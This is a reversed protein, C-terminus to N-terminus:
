TPATPWVVSRPDETNSPLDRLNERYGLWATKQNATLPADVAQTWDTQAIMDNRAMRLKTWALAIEQEEITSDSKKVPQGDVITYEDALYRGEINPTNLAATAEDANFTMIIRGTDADYQTYYKTIM